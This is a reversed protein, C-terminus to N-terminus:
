DRSKRLNFKAPSVSPSALFNVAKDNYDGGMSTLGDVSELKSNQLIANSMGRQM